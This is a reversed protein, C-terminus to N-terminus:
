QTSWWRKLRSARPDDCLGGTPAASPFTREAMTNSCPGPWQRLQRHTGMLMRNSFSRGSNYIPRYSRSGIECASTTIIFNAITKRSTEKIALRYWHQSTGHWSNYGTVVDDFLLWWSKKLNDVLKALDSWDHFSCSECKRAYGKWKFKIESFCDSLHVLSLSGQTGFASSNSVRM